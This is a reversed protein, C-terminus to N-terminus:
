KGAKKQEENMVALNFLMALGVILTVVGALALLLGVGEGFKNAAFIGFGILVAGILIAIMPRM